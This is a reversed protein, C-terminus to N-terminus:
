GGIAQREPIQSWVPVSLVKEEGEAYRAFNTALEETASAVTLGNAMFQRSSAAVLHQRVESSDMNAHSDLESVALDIAPRFPEILDDVLNFYNSRNRHFIGISPSLGAALTARIVHGRLVTYAYDLHANRQYQAEHARGPLRTFGEGEWLSQWYLRAAQAELNDPDGSRVSRAMRDLKAANPRDLESLVTAQGTIKARILRGWANKQRPLSLNVQAIHRAGVRSNSSWGYAAGEPVGKWDCVIVAIDGELLRHLAAASFDVNMGILVVAVDAIPITRSESDNPEISIAGRQSRIRGIM